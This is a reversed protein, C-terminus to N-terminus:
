HQMALIEGALPPQVRRRLRRGLGAGRRAKAVDGRVVDVEADRILMYSIRSNLVDIM